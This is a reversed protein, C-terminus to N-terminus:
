LFNSASTNSLTWFKKSFTSLTMIRTRNAILMKARASSPMAKEKLAAWLWCDADAVDIVSRKSEEGPVAVM